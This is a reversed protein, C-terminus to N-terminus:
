QPNGETQLKPDRYFVIKPINALTNAFREKDTVREFLLAIQSTWLALYDGHPQPKNAAEDLIKSTVGGKRITTLVISSLSAAAAARGQIEAVTNSEDAGFLQGDDFVLTDVRVSVHSASELTRTDAQMQQPSPFGVMGSRVMSEPLLLSPAALLTAGAAAVPQHNLFLSDTWQIKVHLRGATDIWTWRLTLVIIGKTSSNHLVVFFPAMGALATNGAFLDAFAPQASQDYSVLTVGGLLPTVIRLSPMIESGPSLTACGFLALLLPVHIIIRFTRIKM